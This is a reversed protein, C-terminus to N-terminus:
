PTGSTAYNFDHVIGSEDLYIVLVKSYVTPKGFPVRRMERYGYLVASGKDVVPFTLYGSPRGILRTVEDRTTKGRVIDRTGRPSFDTHDSEVTSNFEYGVLRGDLFYYLQTRVPIVGDYGHPKEWHADQSFGVMQLTKGNRDLRSLEPTRGVRAIVQEPTTEGIRLEEASPRVFQQACGGALVLAAAAALRL